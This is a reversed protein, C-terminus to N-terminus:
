VHKPNKKQLYSFPLNFPSSFKSIALFKRNLSILEKLHSQFRTFRQGIIVNFHSIKGFFWLFIGANQPKGGLGDGDGAAPLEAGLAGDTICKTNGTQEIRM